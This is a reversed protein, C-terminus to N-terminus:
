QDNYQLKVTETEILTLNVQSSGRTLKNGGRNQRYFDPFIDFQQQIQLFNSIKKMDSIINNLGFHNLFFIIKPKRSELTIHFYFPVIVHIGL